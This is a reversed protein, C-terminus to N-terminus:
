FLLIFLTRVLWFSLLFTVTGYIIGSLWSQVRYRSKRIRWAVYALALILGLVLGKMGGSFYLIGIPNTIMNKTQFLVSSFKYTFFGILVANIIDNLFDKKFDEEKKLAQRVVFYSIIGALFILVWEYKILLPGLLFAGLTLGGIFEDLALIGLGTDKTFYFVAM